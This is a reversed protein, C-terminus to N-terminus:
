TFPNSKSRFGGILPDHLAFKVDGSPVKEDIFKGSLGYGASALQEQVISTLIISAM